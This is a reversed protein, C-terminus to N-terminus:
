RGTREKKERGKGERARQKEPNAPVDVFSALGREKGADTYKHNAESSVMGGVYLVYVVGDGWENGLRRAQVVLGGVCELM